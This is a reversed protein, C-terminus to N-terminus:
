PPQWLIGLVCSAQVAWDCTISISGCWGSAGPPHLGCGDPWVGVWRSYVHPGLSSVKGGSPGAAAAAAAKKAATRATAAAPRGARAAAGPPTWRQQQQQCPRGGGSTPPRQHSVAGPHQPLVLVGRWTPQSGAGDGSPHSLLTLEKTLQPTLTIYQPVRSPHSVDTSIYPPRLQLRCGAPQRLGDVRGLGHCSAAGEQQAPRHRIHPRRHRGPVGQLSPPLCLRGAASQLPVSAYLNQFCPHSGTCGAAPPTSLHQEIRLATTVLLHSDGSCWQAIPPADTPAFLPWSCTSPTPCAPM